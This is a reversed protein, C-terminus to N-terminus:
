IIYRKTDPAKCYLFIYLTFFIRFKCYWCEQGHKKNSNKNILTISLNKKKRKRRNKKQKNKLITELFITWSNNVTAQMNCDTKGEKFVCFM